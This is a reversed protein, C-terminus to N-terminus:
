LGHSATVLFMVPYPICYCHCFKILLHVIVRRVPTTIADLHERLHQLYIAAGDSEKDASSENESSSEMSSLALVIAQLGYHM